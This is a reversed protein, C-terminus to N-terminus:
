ILRNEAKKRMMVRKLLVKWLNGAIRRSPDPRFGARLDIRTARCGGTTKMAETKM